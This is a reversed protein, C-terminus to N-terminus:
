AVVDDYRAYPLVHLAPILIREEDNLGPLGFLADDHGAYEDLDYENLM